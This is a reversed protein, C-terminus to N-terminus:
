IKCKQADHPKPFTRRGGRLIKHWCVPNEMSKDGWEFSKNSLSAYSSLQDFHLHIVVIMIVIIFVKYICSTSSVFAGCAWQTEMLINLYQVLFCLQIFIFIYWMLWFTFTDGRDNDAHHFSEINWSALVFAGCAWQSIFFLM